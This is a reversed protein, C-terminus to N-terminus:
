SYPEWDPPDCPQRTLRALEDCVTQAEELTSRWWNTVARISNNAATLDEIFAPDQAAAEFDVAYSRNRSENDPDFVMTVHESRWARMVQDRHYDIQGELFDIQRYYASLAQRLRVDGLEAYLGTALVEDYASRPPAVQPLLSTTQIGFTLWGTEVGEFDGSSLRTLADFRADNSRDYLEVMREFHAVAQEAEEHLRYLAAEREAQDSREAAIQTFQFGIVVGAIVIVFEVAVAFWNQERFAQTLRNLIM